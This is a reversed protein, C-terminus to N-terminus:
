QLGVVRGQGDRKVERTQGNVKLGVVKGSSDRVVERPANTQQVVAVLSDSLQQLMQRFQETQESLSAELAEIQASHAEQLTAAEEIRRNDVTVQADRLRARVQELDVSGGAKIQELFVMTEAELADSRDRQAIEAAKM